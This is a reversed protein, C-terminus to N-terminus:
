AVHFEVDILGAIDEPHHFVGIMAVGAAKLTKIRSCLAARADPDLASTPEDLLLLRRPAIMARALNIKQQEGGSFTSPYAQWIAAKLGLSGLWDAAAERAEALSHGAVLLPEAVLDLATVRPRPRLFQTVHGIETRRLLAIDVDAASALDITGDAAAFLAQGREPLYTRYLCRLLSSKGAGNPGRILLLSGAELTFSVGQFAPITRGLAHIVFNKSLDEVHLLPM